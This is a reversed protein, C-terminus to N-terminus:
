SRLLRALDERGYREALEVAHQRDGTSPKWRPDQHLCSSMLKLARQDEEHHLFHSLCSQAYFLAADKSEWRMMENFFWTAAESADPEVRVRELIHAFGGERNGRSIFGYAHNAVRQRDRELEEDTDCDVDAAPLDLRVEGAIDNDYLVAGTLTFLLVFLYSDALETVLRPLGFRGLFEFVLTLVILAVPITFYAGGCARILRSIALPNLSEFPSHTVALVGLSAPLVFLAFIGLLWNAPGYGAEGLWIGAWILLALPIIPTLAWFSDWFSFTEISAVPAPRGNAREELLSVLYRFWAPVIIIALGIGLIGARAALWSLAWFFLVGIVVTANAVPYRLERLLDTTKV